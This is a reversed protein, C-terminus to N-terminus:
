KREARLKELFELTRDNTKRFTVIPLAILEAVSVRSVFLPSRVLAVHDKYLANEAAVPDQPRRFNLDISHTM